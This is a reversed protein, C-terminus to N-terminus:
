NGYQKLLRQFRPHERIPDWRPDLRLTQVSLYAPGALLQEIEDLAADVDGAQALIRARDEAVVPGHYADERYVVSQELWRAERLAEDRRALGALALGRAAHVRWDDPLERVVSDLLVRASDFAARAAPRDGRLQQAWAAYLSSPLFFRTGEFVRSRAVRLVQLLSDAQREWHLLQVRQGARTGLWGLDADRPLRNLVVRLTDLQGQWVVYTWAKDVAAVHLDPALSLARDLARVAEAYRRILQYSSGGLESALNPNRPDLQTAKEFAAEVEEWNGLRRYAYGMQEWLWADNPLRQLAIGYEDLAAQWDRRGYYHALGMAIHAQPLGPALRLATEAEERQRALREPSPDYRWWSMQGHVVSLAAHAPAFTSDLALAREYLQQASEWNQRLYGPRRSYEQGQLYLRYAEANATHAEALSQQESGGLTAGVAMVVQQAVDSQIAFADDLTRDYSEAWLHKDARADILQVNVRLRDGLVQVSGELLTGVELEQAIQKISKTTGAYGMVSTRGRLSLAAVKTLQTLVEDQLGGAFYAYPGEASLNLFPLVAIATAPPGPEGAATPRIWRGVVLAAGVVVVLLAGLVAPRRWSRLRVRPRAAALEGSLGASELAEAFQEATAFRDAPARALAKLTVQEIGEPVTERVTRLSPVMEMAKRALIAQASPGTFPPGGSLMEYLVCGLSYLDSRGDLSGEGTAQEPSMYAVTGVALGTRTLQEGGAAELARALGFDALVAHGEELLINGPKIDRHVVDHRHAYGLADVVECTIRVADAVPLQGERELRSRLSEGEVYPMVYYLVGDAEGSDFLPLIHPHNLHAATEIERLFRETGLTAALEPRLVKIAVQRHHRLDEALYVTAMGGAGLEEQIEYRDALAAKLRDLEPSM